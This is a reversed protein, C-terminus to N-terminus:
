NKAIMMIALRFVRWILEHQDFVLTGPATEVPITYEGERNVPVRLV